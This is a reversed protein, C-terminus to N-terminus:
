KKETIKFHTEDFHDGLNKISLNKITKILEYDDDNRDPFVLHDISKEKTSFSYNFVKEIIIYDVKKNLKFKIHPPDKLIKLIPSDLEDEKAPLNFYGFYLGLIALVMESYEEKIHKSFNEKLLYKDNGSKDGYESIFCTFLYYKLEDYVSLKEFRENKRMPDLALSSGDELFELTVKAHDSLSLKIDNDVDKFIKAVSNLKKKVEDITNNKSQVYFQLPNALNQRGFKLKNINKFTTEDIFERHYKKLFEQFVPRRFVFEEDYIKNILNSLIGEDDFGVKLIKQFFFLPDGDKIKKSGGDLLSLIKFFNKSYNSFGNYYMSANKMFCFMGMIKDFSKIEDKFSDMTMSPKEIDKVTINEIDKIQKTDSIIFSDLGVDVIKKIVDLDKIDSYIISTVRSIPLPRKLFFVKKKKDIELNKEESKTLAVELFIQDKHDGICLQKTLVIREQFEAQIDQVTRNKQGIYRVPMILGYNFYRIVNKSAVQFFYNPEKVKKDFKKEKPSKGSLELFIQDTNKKKKNL